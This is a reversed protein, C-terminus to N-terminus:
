PTMDIDFVNDGKNVELSLHSTKADRYKTPINPFQKVPPPEFNPGLKPEDVPPVVTVQYNGLPIGPGAASTVVYIGDKNLAATMYVGKQANSFLVLGETVPNGQFTVKGHIKGLPEGRQCGIVATVSVIALFSKSVRHV